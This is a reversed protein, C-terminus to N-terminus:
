RKKKESTKEPPKEEASKIGFVKNITKQVKAKPEIRTVKLIVPDGKCACPVNESKRKKNTTGM